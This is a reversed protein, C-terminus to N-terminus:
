LYSIVYIRDTLLFSLLALCNLITSFFTETKLMTSLFFCFRCKHKSTHNKSPCAYNGIIVCYASINERRLIYVTLKVFVHELNNTHKGLVVTYCAFVLRGGTRFCLCAREHSFEESVKM